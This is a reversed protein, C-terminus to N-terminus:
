EWEERINKQWDLPNNISSFLQEQTNELINKIQQKQNKSTSQQKLDILMIKVKHNKFKEYEPIEIYPKDIITTFETAYM